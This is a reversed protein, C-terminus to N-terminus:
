ITLVTKAGEKKINNNYIKKKDIQSSSGLGLGTIYTIKRAVIIIELIPMHGLIPCHYIPLLKGSSKSLTVKGKLSLYM